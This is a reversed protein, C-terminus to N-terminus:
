LSTRVRKFNIHVEGQGKGRAPAYFLKAHVACYSGQTRREGCYRDGIMHRCMFDRLDMLSVGELGDDTVEEPLPHQEMFDDLTDPDVMLDTHGPATAPSFPEVTVKQKKPKRHAPSEVCLGLRRCLGAIQNRTVTAHPTSLKEAIETFSYADLRLERVRDALPHKTGM